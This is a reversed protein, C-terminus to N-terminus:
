SGIQSDVLCQNGLFVEELDCIHSVEQIQSSETVKMRISGNTVWFSHIFNGDHLRKCKSWLFKYNCLSDSIYVPGQVNLSLLDTSKLKKKNKRTRDPDKRKSLKM